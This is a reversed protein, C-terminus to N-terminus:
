DIKQPELRAAISVAIAILAINKIIYQGELTPVFWGTWAMHPLCFLPLVTMVMHAAFLVLAVREARPIVFLVGILIEFLGFVVMFTHDGILAPLTRHQLELVMRSAPSMGFVKLAGFWAYILFLAFRGLPGSMRQAWGTIGADIGSFTM